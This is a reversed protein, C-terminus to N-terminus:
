RKMSRGQRLLMTKCIETCESTAAMDSEEDSEPEYHRVEKM